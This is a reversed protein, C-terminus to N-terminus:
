GVVEAKEMEEVVGSMLVPCLPKISAKLQENIRKRTELTHYITVIAEQIKIDPLPLKVECMDAWDFTERASGWSNFRAYRDFETRQFFLYLYEPLLEETNKVQFVTYTSSILGAEADLIAISIKEGNRSTVSVYGFQRPRVIKYNSLNLREKKSKTPIFIKNVSIGLLNDIKLDNNRKDAQHIYEGLLKSEETKILDEMYTDCILQLDDLSNKYVKQNNLLGKYLAVYKRQEEIDPIPLQIGGFEEFTISGRISSVSIFGLWRDNEPRLLWIMLFDPLLVTKDIIEFVHYAPSILVAEEDELIAVSVKNDRGVKMLILGFQGKEVTKYNSLDVTNTNAISPIFYKEMSLGCVKTVALEKNRKDVLQIYDGLRKYNNM